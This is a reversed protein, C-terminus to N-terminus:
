SGEFSGFIHEIEAFPNPQITKATMIYLRKLTGYDQNTHSAFKKLIPRGPILSKWDEHDRNLADDILQHENRCVAEVEARDLSAVLRNLESNRESEVLGLLEPLSASDSGKAMLDVNGVRQRFHNAIKLSVAYSIFGRALERLRARVLSPSRLPDEVPFALQEFVKVWTNEDLFYNELHYRSLLRLRSSEAVSTMGRSVSDGDCLMFFDVGWITKSLVKEVAKQFAAITGKGGAPVLVLDPFRTGLISGYAEKDLSNRDGEILVIKKGLSIVGVSQGLARLVSAVDDNEEVKLAQNAGTGQSPSVFVVTHEIAATIIEPSHTCFLFQNREGVEQLTRLLRYSLEPHLHLEPEDFVVVCDKPNRLLFDFVVTVVEREGSSLRAFDLKQGNQEYQINQTQENIDFMRKGPLLRAFADKFRAIPDGFQALELSAVGQRRLELARSAIQEKQSRVKRILAHVVDQFRGKMSQFSYNWGINEEFPDAFQWSWAYPQIQEFARASDFNLVGGKLLGRKQPRQLFARLQQAEAVVKTDLTNRKGWASIEDNNTAMVKVSVGGPQPNQFITLIGNLLTTKGVGNPGAFVVVDTLGDIEFRSIPPIGVVSYSLIKM